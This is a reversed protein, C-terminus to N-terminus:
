PEGKWHQLLGDVLPAVLHADALTDRWHTPISALGERVGAIGGAVCATTDTDEGLSVARRVIDEFSIEELALRASHLCDVVYGSGRGGPIRDPAIQDELESTWEPRARILERARRVASGWPGPIRFLEARAWLCYLGCCIQSRPHGHTVRSQACADDFLEQDTGGHWLALPLVRMLSGNGNDWEGSPGSESAPSGLELNELARRTQIGIDFVLGGAALYGVDLWNRFRRGLDEVDLHGRHLLSALLCLAQAGDDSWYGAPVQPHSRCFGAPPQMEIGDRPPLAESPQFVYPAGWADGVLLGYIGGRLRDPEPKAGEVGALLSKM